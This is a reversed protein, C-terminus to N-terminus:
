RGTAPFVGYGTDSRWLQCTEGSRSTGTLYTMQGQRTQTFIVSEVRAGMTLKITLLSRGAPGASYQALAIHAQQREVAMGLGKEIMTGVMEGGMGKSITVQCRRISAPISATGIWGAWQGVIRDGQFIVRLRRSDQLRQLFHSVAKDQPASKNAPLPTLTSPVDWVLQTSAFASTGLM